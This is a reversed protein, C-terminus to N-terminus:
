ETVDIKFSTSSGSISSNYMGESFSPRILYKGPFEPRILYNFVHKGKDLYTVFFAMHDDKDEQHTWWYSWWYYNDDELDHYDFDTGLRDRPDTSILEMGSAKPDQLIIYQGPQDNELTLTLMLIEGAKASGNFPAEKYTVHGEDDTKSVIHKMEKTITIGKNIAPILEDSDYYQYYSFDSTYYLKGEGFKEITLANSQTVLEAPIEVVAENSFMNNNDFYFKKIEKGDLKVVATYDTFDREAKVKVYDSLAHVITSTTKTNYWYDGQRNDLLLEVIKEVMPHDPKVKMMARLAIASIELDNYNYMTFISIGLKELLAKSMGFSVISLSVDARNMLTDILENAKDTYGLNAHALALYSVTQNALNERRRYLNSLITENKKGFLSFVYCEYALDSSDESHYSDKDDNKNLSINVAEQSALHKNLWEVAWDVRKQDIKYGNNMAYKLGLLVYSTMYPNTEDYKWWGWGGDSHQNEYLKDLSQDVILPLKKRTRENLSVGLKNSVDVAIISPLFKSMIQETCGYPYGILYDLSGFIISANSPSLRVIWKLSGPVVKESIDEKIKETAEEDLLKGSKLSEKPVGFPLIKIPLEVADGEIKTSLAYAQVKVDGAVKAELNWDKRVKGQPEITVFTEPKKDPALLKFNSPARLEVKLEQPKDTYNHVVTALVAQDGVTYFRPLALRVIIDKNVLIKDITSAVKTDVTVARVTTRWTTLNDPLTFSVEAKGNEDTNVDAQWFATDKFDKRLKPEIKDAGASYSKYFSYATQVMNARKNYFFKKIDPTFDNRIAYISEDVVGLSLEAKVPNGKSDTVKINYVVKEQPKYRKKNPKIDINLFNGSPSVKIMRTEHYYDKDKGVIIVSLYANPVYLDKIPLEYLQSNSKIDVLDYSYLESGELTILATAEEVPSVIMVKAIDGEQYVKKDLTVQLKPKVESKYKPYKYNSIWIFDTTSIDNGNSDKSIAIIRYNKTAANKPIKLVAVAEGKDNTKVKADSIYKPKEYEYKTKNWTWSELYLEVNASVTEKEYNITSVNVKIDENETYVYRDAEIFLAYDGSVVDFKANGVATKRSIDTVEAEVKYVQAVTDDYSYYKDTNALIKDTKFSIKAEGSEDTTAYGETIVEGSSEYYDYGAYYYAEDDDWDDFYSYYEPRPLLRWKMGYDPSSYVTYRVKANTVPYGFYYTAKITATAQNGGVVLESGPIVEVLYEPKRYEAVEFYNYYTNDNIETTIRYNGLMANEPLEILGSYTGFKNTKIKITKMPEDDPNYVTVKVAQDAYTKYLGDVEERIIGKFFVTQNPRYIPRDTYGYVKFRDSDYYWAYSGNMATADDKQACVFLSAYERNYDKDFYYEAIGKKNTKVEGLLKNDSNRDYIKVSVDDVSELTNLNIARILVKNPDHKTVIGINTVNFWMSDSRTSGDISSEGEVYLLYCGESLNKTIDERNMNYSDNDKNVRRSWNKIEEANDIVTNIFSDSGYYYNNILFRVYNDNDKALLRFMLMPDFKYLTINVRSIGSARYWFYPNESTTFVKADAGVSLSPTVYDLKVDTVKTDEAEQVTIGWKTESQYDDAKITVRYDGVPLGNIKYNGNRDVYSGRVVPGYAIVRPNSKFVNDTNYIKSDAGSMTKQLYVSGVINGKPKELMIGLAILCIFIFATLLWRWM